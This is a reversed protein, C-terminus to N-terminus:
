KVKEVNKIKYKKTIMPLVDIIYLV